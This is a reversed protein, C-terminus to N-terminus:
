LAVARSNMGPDGHQRTHAIVDMYEILVLM